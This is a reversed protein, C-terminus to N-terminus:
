SQLVAHGSSLINFVYIKTLLDIAARWLLLILLLYQQSNENSCHFISDIKYFVLNIILM